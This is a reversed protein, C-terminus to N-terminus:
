AFKIWAWECVIADIWVRAQWCMRPVIRSPKQTRFNVLVLFKVATAAVFTACFDRQYGALNRSLKAQDGLPQLVGDFQALNANQGQTFM